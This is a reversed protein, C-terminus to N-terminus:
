PSSTAPGTPSMGALTRFWEGSNAKTMLIEEGLMDVIKVAVTIVGSPAPIGYKGRTPERVEMLMMEHTM